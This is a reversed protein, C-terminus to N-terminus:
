SVLMSGGKQLRGKAGAELPQIFLPELRSEKVGAAPFAGPLRYDVPRGAGSAPCWEPQAVRRFAGISLRRQFARNLCGEIFVQPVAPTERWFSVSLLVVKGHSAAALRGAAPYEQKKM